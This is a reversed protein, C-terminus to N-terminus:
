WMRGEEAGVRQEEREVLQLSVEVGADNIMSGTRVLIDEANNQKLMEQSSLELIDRLKIAKELPESESIEFNAKVWRGDMKPYLGFGMKGSFAYAIVVVFCLTAIALTLSPWALCKKLLPTYYDTILKQLGKDCQKQLAKFKATVANPEKKKINALHAPLIFLAEVWSVVFCLVVVIPIAGFLLKMFGPLLLLPLFAVINTLIAFTLPKVVEKAGLIAADSYSM